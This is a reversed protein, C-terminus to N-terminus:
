QKKNTRYLENVFADTYEYGEKTPKIWRNTLRHFCFNDEVFKEIDKENFVLWEGNKQALKVLWYASEETKGDKWISDWVGYKVDIDSPKINTTM